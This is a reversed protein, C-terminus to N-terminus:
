GDSGEWDSSESGTDNMYARIGEFYSSLGGFDRAVAMDGENEVSMQKQRLLVPLTNICDQVVDVPEYTYIEDDGNKLLLAFSWLAPSINEKELATIIRYHTPYELPHALCADITTSTDLYRWSGPAPIAFNDKHQWKHGLATALKADEKLLKNRIERLTLCYDIDDDSVHPNLPDPENHFHIMMNRLFFNVGEDIKDELHDAEATQSRTADAHTAQFLESSPFAGNDTDHITIQSTSSKRHHSSPQIETVPPSSIEQSEVVHSFMELRAPESLRLSPKDETSPKQSNQKSRIDRQQRHHQPPETRRCLQQSSNTKGLGAGAPVSRQSRTVM